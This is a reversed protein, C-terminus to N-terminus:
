AAAGDTRDARIVRYLRGKDRGSTLDLHKKIVPPLSDPHEIVERYMDLIYLNGDPGNAFQVPRFWIDRSAVFEREPTARRAVLRSTM